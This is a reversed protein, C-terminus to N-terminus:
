VYSMRSEIYYKEMELMIPVVSKRWGEGAVCKLVELYKKDVKQLTWTEVGYM